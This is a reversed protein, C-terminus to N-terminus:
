FSPGPIGIWLHSLHVHVRLLTAQASSCTRIINSWIKINNWFHVLNHPLSHSVSLVRISRATCNVASSWFSLIVRIIAYPQAQTSSLVSLHSVTNLHLLSLWQSPTSESFHIINHRLKGCPLWFDKLFHLTDARRMHYISFWHSQYYQPVFRCRTIQVGPSHTKFSNIYCCYQALVSEQLNVDFIISRRVIDFPLPKCLFASRFHCRWVLIFWFIM